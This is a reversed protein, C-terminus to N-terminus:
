WLKWWPRKAVRAPPEPDMEEALALVMTGGCVCFATFMIPLAGERVDPFRTKAMISPADLSQDAGCADCASYIWAPREELYLEDIRLAAPMGPAHMFLLRDGERTHALAHPANLLIGTYVPVEREVPPKGAQPAASCRLTGHVGDVRVWCLEPSRGSRRPEGEHVVVQM